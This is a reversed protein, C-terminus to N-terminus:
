IFGLLGEIMYVYVCLYTHIYISIIWTCINHVYIYVHTSTHIHTDYYIYICTYIICLYMCISIYIYVYIYISLLYKRLAASSKPSSLRQLLRGLAGPAGPRPLPWGPPLAGNLLRIKYTYLIKIHVDKHIFITM